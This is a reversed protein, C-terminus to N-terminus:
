QNTITTIIIKIEIRIIIKVMIQFMVIQHHNMTQVTVIMMMVIMYSYGYDKHEKFKSTEQAKALKNLKARDKKTKTCTKTHTKMNHREAVHGCKCQIIPVITTSDASIKESAIGIFRCGKLDTECKHDDKRRIELGCTPCRGIICCNHTEHYTRAQKSSLVKVCPKLRCPYSAAKNKRM